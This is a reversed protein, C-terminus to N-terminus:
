GQTIESIKMTTPDYWVRARNARYEMTTIMGDEIFSVDDVGPIAALVEIILRKRTESPEGITSVGGIERGIFAAKEPM